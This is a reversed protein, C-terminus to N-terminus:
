STGCRTEWSTKCSTKRRTERQQIAYRGERPRVERTEWRTELTTEWSIERNTKRRTERQKETDLTAVFCAFGFLFLRSTTGPMKAPM